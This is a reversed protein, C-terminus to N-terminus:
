DYSIQRILTLNTYAIIWNELMKPETINSKEIKSPFKLEQESNM